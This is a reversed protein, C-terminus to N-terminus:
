ANPTGRLSTSVPHELEFQIDSSFQLCAVVCDRIEDLAAEACRKSDEGPYNVIIALERRASDWDARPLRLWPRHQFEERLHSLGASAEAESLGRVRIRVPVDNM